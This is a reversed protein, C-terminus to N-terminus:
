SNSRVNKASERIYFYYLTEVLVIPLWFYKRFYAGLFLSATFIGCFSILLGKAFVNEWTSPDFYKIIKRGHRWVSIIMGLFFTLGVLGLEAWIGIVANHVGTGPRITNVTQVMPIYSKLNLPFNSLGVGLWLNNQIMKWGIMWIDLRNSGRDYALSCFRQRLITGPPVISLILLFGAAFLLWRKRVPNFIFTVLFMIVFAFFDGRSQTIILALINLALVVVNLWPFPFSYKGTVLALQLGIALLLYFGFINPDQHSFFAPRTEGLFARFIAVLAFVSTILFILGILKQFKEKTEVVNLTVFFFLCLTSLDTLVALIPKTSSSWIGSIISYGFFCWYLIPIYIPGGSHRQKISWIVLGGVLLIRACWVLLRMGPLGELFITVTLFLVAGFPIKTVIQKFGSFRTVCFVPKMKGTVADLNFM